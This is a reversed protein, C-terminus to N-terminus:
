GDCVIKSLAQQSETIPKYLVARVRVIPAAGAPRRPAARVGGPSCLDCGVTGGHAARATLVCLDDEYVM